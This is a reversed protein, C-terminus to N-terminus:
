LQGANTFYEDASSLPAFKKYLTLSISDYSDFYLLKNDPEADVPEISILFSFSM